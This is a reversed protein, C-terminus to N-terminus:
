YPIAKHKKGRCVKCVRMGNPTIVEGWGSCNECTHVIEFHGFKNFKKLIIALKVDCNICFFHGAWDKHVQKCLGCKPIIKTTDTYKKEELIGFVITSCDFCLDLEEKAIFHHKDGEFRKFCFHCHATKKHMNCRVSQGKNEVSGFYNLGYSDEIM